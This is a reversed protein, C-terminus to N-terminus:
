AERVSATANAEASQAVVERHRMRRMPGRRAVVDRWLERGNGAVPDGSVPPVSRRTVSVAAALFCERETSSTAKWASSTSALSALISARIRRTLSRLAAGGGVSDELLLPTRHGGIWEGLLAAGDASADELILDV